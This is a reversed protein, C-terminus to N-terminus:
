SPRIIPPPVFTDYCPPFRGPTRYAPLAGGPNWDNTIYRPNRLNNDEQSVTEGAGIVQGWSFTKMHALEANAALM